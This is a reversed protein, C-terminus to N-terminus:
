VGEKKLASNVLKSQYHLLHFMSQIHKCHENNILAWCAADQLEFNIAKIKKLTKAEM